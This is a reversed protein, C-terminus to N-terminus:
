ALFKILEQKIQDFELLFGDHGYNSKIEVYKGKPIFDALFKQEQAPILIDSDIGICLTKCMIKSLAHKISKRGRGINHTDLTNLLKYYCLPDFRDVLKKGQYRIYSSAKFNNTVEASEERQSESISDFTRYFNLAMGRAAMLGKSGAAEKQTGFSCDAELAMRQGEHVAINFPSELAASCLLVLHEVRLNLLYAMELAINGGCSGGILLHIDKLGLHKALLLNAKACDRLTLEPFDLNYKKSTSSNDSLPSSSGYPSGLNNACIIFFKSPDFVSGEGFLGSWWNSVDSNATLAHCVWIVNSKDSNLKGYASYEIQLNQIEDGLELAFVKDYHFTARTM